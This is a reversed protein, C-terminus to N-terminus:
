RLAARPPLAGTNLGQRLGDVPRDPGRATLGIHGRASRGRRGDHQDRPFGLMTLVRESLRARVDDRLSLSWNEQTRMFARNFYLLIVHRKGDTRNPGTGHWVRSDWILVTGAPGEAAITGEISFPDDLGAGRGGHPM